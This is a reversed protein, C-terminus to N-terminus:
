PSKSKATVLALTRRKLKLHTSTENSSITQKKRRESKKRRERKKKKLSELNQSKGNKMKKVPVFLEKHFAATYSFRQLM